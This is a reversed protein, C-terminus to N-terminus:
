DDVHYVKARYQEHQGKYEFVCKQIKEYVEACTCNPDTFMHYIKRMRDCDISLHNEEIYREIAKRCENGYDVLKVHVWILKDMCASFSDIGDYPRLDGLGSHKRNGESNMHSSVDETQSDAYFIDHMVNERLSQEPSKIRGTENVGESVWYTERYDSEECKLLTIAAVDSFVERYAKILVRVINILKGGMRARERNSNLTNQVRWVYEMNAQYNSEDDNLMDLMPDTWQFIIDRVKEGERMGSVIETCIEILPQEINRAHYTNNESYEEVKRKMAKDITNLLRRRNERRILDFIKEERKNTVNGDYKEPFIEEGIAYVLTKAINKLRSERCRVDRGVYHATEHALVIM